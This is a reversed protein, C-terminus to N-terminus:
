VPSRALIRKMADVHIGTYFSYWIKGRGVRPELHSLSDDPLGHGLLITRLEREKSQVDKHPTNGGMLGGLSDPWEVTLLYKDHVLDAEGWIDLGIEKVAERLSVVWEKLTM